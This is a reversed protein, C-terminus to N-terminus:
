PKPGKALEVEFTAFDDTIFLSNGQTVLQRLGEAARFLGPYANHREAAQQYSARRHGETPWNEEDLSPMLTPPNAVSVVLREPLVLPEPAFGGLFEEVVDGAATLYSFDGVKQQMEEIVALIKAEFEKRTMPNTTSM